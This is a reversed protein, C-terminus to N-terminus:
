PPPMTQLSAQPLGAQKGYHKYRKDDVKIISSRQEKHFEPDIPSQVPKSQLLEKYKLKILVLVKDANTFDKFKLYGLFKFILITLWVEPVLINASKTTWFKLSPDPATLISVLCPEFEPKAESVIGAPDSGQGSLKM